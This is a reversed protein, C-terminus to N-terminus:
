SLFDDDEPIICFDDEAKHRVGGLSEGDAVKQIGNLTSTVGKNLGANYPYIDLSVRAYCGSYVETTDLIPQVKHDVIYPRNKNSTNIFYHGHCSEDEELDGDKLMKTNKKGAFGAGFKAIGAKEAEAEAEMLKAVTEKDTKPILVRCTHKPDSGNVSVPESVRVYSLRAKGTVVKIAM